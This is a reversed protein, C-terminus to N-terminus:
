LMGNKESKNKRFRTRYSSEQALIAVTIIYSLLIIYKLINM